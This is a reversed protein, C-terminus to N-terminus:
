RGKEQATPAQPKSQPISPHGPPLKGGGPVSPHGPPLAEDPRSGGVGHGQSDSRGTVVWHGSKEELTYNMVMGQSISPDNKQHFSVTAHAKGDTFQVKTIDVDLAKMDLGVKTSLYEVLDSRVQERNEINKRCGSLVSVAFAAVFLLSRLV